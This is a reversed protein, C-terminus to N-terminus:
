KKRLLIRITFFSWVNFFSAVTESLDALFLVFIFNEFLIEINKKANRETKLALASRHLFNM